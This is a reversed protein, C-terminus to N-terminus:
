EQEREGRGRRHRVTGREGLREGAADARRGHGPAAVHQHRHEVDEQCQGQEHEEGGLAVQERDVRRERRPDVHQERREHVHREQGRERVPPHADALDDRRRTRPPTSAPASRRRQYVRGEGAGRHRACVGPSRRRPGAEAPRPRTSGLPPRDTVAAAPAFAFLFLAAVLILVSGLFGIGPGLLPLVITGAVMLSLSLVNVALAVPYARVGRIAGELPGGGEFAVVVMGTVVALFAARVLLFVGGAVLGATGYGFITVGNLADFYTGIPPLAALNVLRGTPGELGIAVLAIWAAFVFLFTTLLIPISSGVLIAGARISAWISPFGSEGPLRSLWSLWGPVPRAEDRVAPAPRSPRTAGSSRTRKRRKGNSM